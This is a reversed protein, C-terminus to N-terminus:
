FLVGQSLRRAAVECYKEELEIGIAKRGNRKAAVLTSGSGMFPDVVTEDQVMDICWAMLAVPKQCPHFMKCGNVEKEEKGAGIWTFRFAQSRRVFNTWAFETEAQRIKTNNQNIKVWSLWGPYDPLKSAFCNGGWLIAKWEGILFSPDFPKADNAVKRYKVGQTAYKNGTTDLNIGYPPDTVIFSVQLMPLMEKCDGHYITIGREEYYPKPLTLPQVPQHVFHQVPTAPKANETSM